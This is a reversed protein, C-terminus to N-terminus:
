VTSQHIAVLFSLDSQGFCEFFITLPWIRLQLKIFTTWYHKSVFIEQTVKNKVQDFIIDGGKQLWARKLSREGLWSIGFWNESRLTRSFLGRVAPNSTCVFKSFKSIEACFYSKRVVIGGGGGGSAAEDCNTSWNNRTHTKRGQRWSTDCLATYKKGKNSFERERSPWSVTFMLRRSKGESSM